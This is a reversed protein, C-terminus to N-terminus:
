IVKRLNQIKVINRERLQEYKSLPRSDVRAIKAQINDELAEGLNDMFSPFTKRSRKRSEGKKRTNNVITPKKKRAPVEEEDLDTSLELVLDIEESDGGEEVLEVEEAEGLEDEEGKEFNTLCSVIQTCMEISHKSPGRFGSWPYLVPWNTPAEGKGYILTQNKGYGLDGLVHGCAERMRAAGKWEASGPRAFLQTRSVSEGQEGGERIAEELKKKITEKLEEDSEFAAVTVNDGIVKFVGNPGDLTFCIHSVKNKALTESVSKLAHTAM